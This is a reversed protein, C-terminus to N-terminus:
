FAPLQGVLGQNDPPMQCELEWGKRRLVEYIKRM